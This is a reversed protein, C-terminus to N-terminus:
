LFVEGELPFFGQSPGLEYPPVKRSFALRTFFSFLLAIPCLSSPPCLSSLCLHIPLIIYSLIYLPETEDPKMSLYLLTDDAYCHVNIGHRQIINGLPLMYLIFLILGSVSGQPVGCSVRMQASSVDNVDIFQLRDTLYSKFWGPPGASSTHVNFTTPSELWRWKQTIIYESGQNFFKLYTIETYISAWSTQM